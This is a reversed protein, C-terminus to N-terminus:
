YAYTNPIYYVPGTVPTPNVIFYVENNTFAYYTPSTALYDSKESIASRFDNSAGDVNAALTGTRVLKYTYKTRRNNSINLAHSDFTLTFAPTVSSFAPNLGALGLNGTKLKSASTYDELITWPTPTALVTGAGDIEEVKRAIAFSYAGLTNPVAENFAVTITKAGQDGCIQYAVNATIEQWGLPNISMTATPPNIVTVNMVTTSGACGGFSPSAVEQVNVVYKGTDTYTIEVYNAPKSSVPYTVSAGSGPNTPVTWNWTFGGTLAWGGVANYNPHYLPDPLAYYGMTTGGTNLTVYDINTPSTKNNDYLAYDPNVVQAYAGSLMFMATVLLAMRM